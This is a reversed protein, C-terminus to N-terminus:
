SQTLGRHVEVVVHAGEAIETSLTVLILSKITNEEVSRSCGIWVFLEPRHEEISPKVSVGVFLIGSSKPLNLIKQEISRALEAHEKRVFPILKM